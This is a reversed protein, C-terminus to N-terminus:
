NRALNFIKKYTKDLIYPIESYARGEISSFIASYIESVAFPETGSLNKQEIRLYDKISDLFFKIETLFLPEFDVKVRDDATLEVAVPNTQLARTNEIKQKSYILNKDAEHAHKLYFQMKNLSGELRGVLKELDTKKEGGFLEKLKHLGPIEAM